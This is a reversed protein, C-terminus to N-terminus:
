KKEWIVNAVFNFRGFVEDCLVKLYHCEDDDISIWISGNDTLLSGLLELHPKMLSLWLSHELNDEYHTFANRSNYPPDIVVCRIRGVYDQQLSKLALLNDGKILMNDTTAKGEEDLQAQGKPEASYSYEPKEILIRPEPRVKNEPDYKGVWTLELKNM